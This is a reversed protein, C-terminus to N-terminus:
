QVKNVTEPPLVPRQIVSASDNGRSFWNIRNVNSTSLWKKRAQNYNDCGFARSSSVLRFNSMYKCYLGSTSYWTNVWACVTLRPAMYVDSASRLFWLFACYREQLGWLQWLHKDKPHRLYAHHKASPNQEPQNHEFCIQLGAGRCGFSRKWGIRIDGRDSSSVCILSQHWTIQSFQAIAVLHPSLLREVRAGNVCSLGQFGWLLVKLPDYIKEFLLSMHNIVSTWYFTKWSM